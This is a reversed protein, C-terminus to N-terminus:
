RQRELLDILRDMQEVTNYHVASVRIVGDGSSLNMSNVLRKSHFDGFRIGIGAPDVARVVAESSKGNIIFSITPVRLAKDSASQGIITVDDRGRLYALLRESLAQEHDAMVAFAAEVAARGTENGGHATAFDELYQLMGSCGASLEYNPNGPELKNPVKDEGYFYHNINHADHRLLEYRGYMAGHHPGYVKYAAFVYYDVDLAQVDVARHPAYAVGDVCIKAGAEHVIDAIDRVPMITGFINSAHTVAVLKTRLSLLARLDDLDPMDTGAPIKWERITIGRSELQRWPGINAEHDFNTVIVEDGEAWGQVLGRALQDLLQTATAGMVIEEPRQANMITALAARGAAVTAGAKQSAAYSAGLQVSEGSMFKVVHDITQQAVQSGGANDLFVGGDKLGPFCSHVFDMNITPM